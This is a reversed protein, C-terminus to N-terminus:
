YIVPIEFIWFLYGISEIVKKNINSISYIFIYWKGKLGRKSSLFDWDGTM